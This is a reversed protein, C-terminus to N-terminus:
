KGYKRRQQLRELIEQYPFIIQIVRFSPDKLGRAIAKALNGLSALPLFYAPYLQTSLEFISGASGIFDAYMRWQKPDDDFLNGFRGGILLRGVAGLGDKSVWRVAAASAAVSTGTFSGVGVAKLLSSTVITHCVWGTVNTPFQWLMYDLYDDSVSGPYGKPLIFDKIGRPLWSLDSFHNEQVVNLLHEHEERVTQLHSNAGLIYRKSSGDRYREVLLSRVRQQQQDDKEDARPTHFKQSFCRVPKINPNQLFLFSSSSPSSSSSFPFSLLLM